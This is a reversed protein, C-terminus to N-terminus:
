KRTELWIGESRGGHREADGFSVLAQGQVPRPLTGKAPAFPSGPKIRGPSLRAYKKNKEPKPEPATQQTEAQRPRAEAEALERAQAEALEKEYQALGTRAQALEKNMRELLDGLYTVEGAHRKAAERIQVLEGRGQALKSKKEELLGAIRFQETELKESEQRQAAQERRIGDSLRVLDKLDDGLSDAQFKIEPYITAMLMASRVMALADDRRAVVAPPPEKGIRQMASLLKAITAHRQEISGRVMSEQESYQGLREEIETLKRESTQIRRATAILQENLAAREAALTDLDRSLAQEKQRARELERRREELQRAADDKTLNEQAPAPAGPCSAALVLLLVLAARTGSRRRRQGSHQNATDSM